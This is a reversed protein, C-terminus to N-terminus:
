AKTIASLKAFGITNNSSTDSKKSGIQYPYNAGKYIKTVYGTNGKAKTNEAKTDYASSSYSGTIKVKSGVAIESTEKKPEEKKKLEKYCYNMDVNGKIGKVTGKDTYQWIDYTGSYTCKSAYQAVWKSFGNYYSDKLKTTWWYKNAYFGVKYGSSEIKKAFTKAIELITANSCKGTTGEDELDYYVPYDLKYGKVLRLVHEAESRAKSTNDAYSYLYVGFPIGLKTCADANEKFTEDDQKTINSGYGVRLIVFDVNGKVTNWDVKGNWVSVDIGKLKTM